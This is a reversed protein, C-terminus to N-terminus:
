PTTQTGSALKGFEGLSPSSELMAKRSDTNPLSNLNDSLHDRTERKIVCESLVAMDEGSKAIIGIGDYSYILGFAVEDDVSGPTLM